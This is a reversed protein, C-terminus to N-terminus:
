KEKKKLMRKKLRSSTKEKPYGREHYIWRYGTVRQVVGGNEEGGESSPAGSTEPAAIITDLVDATDGAIGSGVAQADAKLTEGLPPPTDLIKQTITIQRAIAELSEIVVLPYDVWREIDKMLVVCWSPLTTFEDVGVQIKFELYAEDTLMLCKEITVKM